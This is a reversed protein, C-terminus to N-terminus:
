NIHKHKHALDKVGDNLIYRKNDYRSLSVILKFAGLQHSKSPIKENRTENKGKILCIKINKM